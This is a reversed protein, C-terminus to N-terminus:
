RLRLSPYGFSLFNSKELFVVNDYNTEKYDFFLGGKRATKKGDILKRSIPNCSEPDFGTRQM